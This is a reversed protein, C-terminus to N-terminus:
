SLAGSLAGAERICKALHRAAEGQVAYRGVETGSADYVVFRPSTKILV